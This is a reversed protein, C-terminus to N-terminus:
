QIAAEGYQSLLSLLTVYERPMFGDQSNISREQTGSQIFLNYYYTQSSGPAASMMTGQMAFFNLDKIVTNLTAIDAESITGEEGNYIVNGNEFFEIVIEVGDEGGTKRFYIYDFDERPVIDETESAVLTQPLPVNLAGDSAPTQTAPIFPTVPPPLLTELDEDSIGAGVATVELPAESPAVPSSIDNPVSTEESDGGSGCAALILAVLLILSRRM